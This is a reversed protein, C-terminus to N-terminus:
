ESGAGDQSVYSLPAGFLEAATDSYSSGISGYIHSCHALAYLDCVAAFMGEATTRTLPASPAFHCREGYKEVFRRRLLEDDTALFFHTDAHTAILRETLNVFADTPSSAIAARHDTRRIHLGVTHPPFSATLADIRQQLSPTPRFVDAANVIGAYPFFEYCTAVYLRRPASQLLALFDDAGKRGTGFATTSRRPLPLRRVSPLDAMRAPRLSFNPPCVAQSGDPLLPLFLDTFRAACESNDRWVVCVRSLPQSKAFALASAVVRMRNCLGGEPYVTLALPRLPQEIPRSESAQCTCPNPAAPFPNM